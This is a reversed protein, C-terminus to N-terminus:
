PKTTTYTVEERGNVIKVVKYFRTKGVRPLAGTDEDGAIESVKSVYQKTERYPPINQGYKDVAGPGANYAALALRENNDYRDLLQRLYSSGARINQEPDYPNSVNFQRATDPMLQMLGQAGKPSRAYPNFASEVQVVARVLDPRLNNLRAHQVILSDYSESRPSLSARESSSTSPSPVSASRGTLRNKISIVGDTGITADLDGRHLEALAASGADASQARAEPASAGVLIGALMSLALCKIGPLAARFQQPKM